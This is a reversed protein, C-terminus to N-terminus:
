IKKERDLRLGIAKYKSQTNLVFSHIHHGNRNPKSQEAATEHKIIINYKFSYFVGSFYFGSAYKLCFNFCDVSDDFQSLM